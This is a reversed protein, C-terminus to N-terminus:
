YEFDTIMLIIENLAKGDFIPASMVEDINKAKVINDGCWVDFEFENFPDVGCDKGDYTFLVHSFNSLIIEKLDDINM